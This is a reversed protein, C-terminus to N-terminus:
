NIERKEFKVWKPDLIEAPSKFSDRKVWSLMSSTSSPACAPCGALVRGFRLGAGAQAATIQPVAKDRGPERGKGHWMISNPPKSLPTYKIYQVGPPFWINVLSIIKFENKM